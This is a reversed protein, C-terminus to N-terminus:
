VLIAMQCYARIPGFTLKHPVDRCYRRQPLSQRICSIQLLFNEVLKTRVEKLEATSLSLWRSALSEGHLREMIIYEAGVPNDAMSSSAFNKPVPLELVNRLRWRVPPPIVLHFRRHTPIRALVEHGDDMTLLFLKNFGGDAMKIIRVCQDRNVVRAAARM